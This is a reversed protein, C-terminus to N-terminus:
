LSTTHTKCNGRRMHVGMWLRGGSLQRMRTALIEGLALVPPPLRLEYVVMSARSQDETFRMSGKLCFPSILNANANVM